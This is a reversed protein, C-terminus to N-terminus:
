SGYSWDGRHYASVIGNSRAALSHKIFQKRCLNAIKKGFINIFKSISELVTESAFLLGHETAPEPGHAEESRPFDQSPSKSTFIPSTPSKNTFVTQCKQQLL